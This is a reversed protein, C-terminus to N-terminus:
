LSGLTADDVADWAAVVSASPFTELKPTRGLVRTHRSTRTFPEWGPDGERAFRTWADMTLESLAEADPGDGFFGSAGEIGFTGFVFGLDIAHPSRLAGGALPSQWDFLYGHAPHGRDDLADLLRLAPMGFIRDTQIATLIEGPTAEIDRAALEERYTDVLADIPADGLLYGLRRRMRPEDMGLIKPDFAAFLRWEDRTTGTM